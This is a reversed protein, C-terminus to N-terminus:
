PNGREDQLRYLTQMGEDSLRWRHRNFEPWVGRSEDVEEVVLAEREATRLASDAEAESVKLRAAIMETTPLSPEETPERVGVATLLKLTDM